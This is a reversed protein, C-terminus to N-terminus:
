TLCEVEKQKKEALTNLRHIFVWGVAAADSEEAICRSCAALLATLLEDGSILPTALVPQIVQVSKGEPTEVVLYGARSMAKRTAEDIWGPEIVVLPKTPM